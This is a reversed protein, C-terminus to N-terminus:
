KPKNSIWSSISGLKRLTKSNIITGVGVYILSILVGLVVFTILATLYTTM